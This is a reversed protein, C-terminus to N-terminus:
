QRERLNKVLSTLTSSKAERNIRDLLADLGADGEVIFADTENAYVVAPVQTIGYKTFLLPNVKIILQFRQCIKQPNMVDRCDPDKKAIRNFFEASAKMDALGKVFGRM